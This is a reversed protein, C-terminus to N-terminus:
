SFSVLLARQGVVDGEKAHTSGVVCEAKAYMTHEMKMAELVVLPEGASVKQGAEVLLRVIKGPMPSVVSSQTADGAGAASLKLQAQRAVDRVALARMEGGSFVTIVLDDSDANPLEVVATGSVSEGGV